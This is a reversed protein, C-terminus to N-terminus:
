SFNGLKIKSRDWQFPIILAADNYDLFRFNRPLVGIIQRAKGDM